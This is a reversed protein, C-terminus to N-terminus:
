KYSVSSTPLSLLGAAPDDEHSANFEPIWPTSGTENASRCKNVVVIEDRGCCKHVVATTAAVDETTATTPAANQQLGAACAHLQLLLAFALRLLVRGRGGNLSRSSILM